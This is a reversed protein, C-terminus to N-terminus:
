AAKALESPLPHSSGHLLTQRISDDALWWPHLLVRTAVFRRAHGNSMEAQALTFIRQRAECNRWLAYRAGLPLEHAHRRAAAIYELGERVLRDPALRDRRERRAALTHPAIAPTVGALLLRCSFEYDFAFRLSPDYAGFRDFLSRRRFTAGIPLMGSDHMLFAAASRPAGAAIVGRPEDHPGIRLCHGVLWDAGGGSMIQAVEHLAGPLLLDGSPIVAIIEDADRPSRALAKNIAGAPGDDPETVVASLEREYMRLVAASGDQSSGDAVIYRLNDYGQDLVSCLTQELYRGHNYNATVITIRPQNM